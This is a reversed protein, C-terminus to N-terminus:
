LVKTYVTIAATIGVGGAPALVDIADDGVFILVDDPIFLAEAAAVLKIHSLIVDRSAGAGSNLTTDVDETVPASYKCTVLLLRRLEGAAITVTLSTNADGEEEHRDIRGAFGKRNTTLITTAM